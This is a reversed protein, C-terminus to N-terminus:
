LLYCKLSDALKETGIIILLLCAVLITNLNNNIYYFIENM